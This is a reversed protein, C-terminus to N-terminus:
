PSHVEELLLRLLPEGPRGREGVPHPGAAEVVEDTLLMEHSRVADQAPHDLGVLVM